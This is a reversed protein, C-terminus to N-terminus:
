VVRGADNFEEKALPINNSIQQISKLPIALFRLDSEIERLKLILDLRDDAEIIEFYPNRDVLFETQILVWKM